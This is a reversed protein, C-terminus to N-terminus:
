KVRRLIIFFEPIGLYALIASARMYDTLSRPEIAKPRNSYLERPKNM